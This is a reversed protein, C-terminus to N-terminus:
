VPAAAAPSAAPAVPLAVLTSVAAVSVRLGAEAAAAAEAPPARAPAAAAAHHNLGDLALRREELFDDADHGVLDRVGQNNQGGRAVVIFDALHQDADVHHRPLHQNFGNDRLDRQGTIQLEADFM